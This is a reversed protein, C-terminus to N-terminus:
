YANGIDHGLDTTYKMEVSDGSKLKVNPNSMGYNPFKGNVSYMWGSSGGADKEYLHNIGQVYVSNYINLDAGQYEMQIRNLRTAKQLVDFPTADAPVEIVTKPLILGNAPVYKQKEESLKVINEKKALTRVDIIISVKKTGSESSESSSNDSSDNSSADSDNSKADPSTKDSSNHNISGNSSTVDGQSNDNVQGGTQAELMANSNSDSSNLQSSQAEKDDYYADPSKFDLASITAALFLVILGILAFKKNIKM